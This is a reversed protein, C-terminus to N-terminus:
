YVYIIQLDFIKRERLCSISCYLVLYKVGGGWGLIFIYFFSAFVCSFANGSIAFGSFGVAATLAVIALVSSRAFAVVLLFLAEMGFGGCNFVKRVMTTSLINNSRLYDALQGGIPVVITMVLHPLASLTGSQFWVNRYKM